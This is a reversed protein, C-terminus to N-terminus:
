SIGLTKPDRQLFHCLFIYNKNYLIVDKCMGTNRNTEGTCPLDRLMCATGLVYPSFNQLSHLRGGQGNLCRDGFIVSIGDERSLQAHTQPQTVGDNSWGPLELVANNM